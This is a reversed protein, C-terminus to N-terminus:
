ATWLLVDQTGDNYVVQNPQAGTVDFYLTGTSQNGQLIPAPSLGNPVPVTDIVRYQQGSAARANFDAVVPTVAGSNAQATVNAQYLQGQPTYGPITVSAPQLNSVTYNTILPGDVLQESTGFGGMTPPAAVATAAAFISAAAIGTAGIASTVKTSTFKM